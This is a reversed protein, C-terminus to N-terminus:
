TLVNNVIVFGFENFFRLIDEEDKATELAFSKMFRADREDRPIAAAYAAAFADYPEDVADFATASPQRRKTSDCAAGAKSAKESMAHIRLYNKHM